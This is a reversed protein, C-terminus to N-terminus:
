YSFFYCINFISQFIQNLSFISVFRIFTSVARLAIWTVYFMNSCFDVINWMDTIYEALGDFWLSRVETVINAMIFIVTAAEFLGPFAGRERHKWDELVDLFMPDVFKGLLLVAIHEIRQSAACVCV